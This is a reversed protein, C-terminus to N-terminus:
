CRFQERAPEGHSCVLRTPFMRSRPWFEFQSVVLFEIEKARKKISYVRRGKIVNEKITFNEKVLEPLKKVIEGPPVPSNTLIEKSADKETLIINRRICNYFKSIIEFDRPKFASNNIRDGPVEEKTMKCAKKAPDNVIIDDVFLFFLLEEPWGQRWYTVFTQPDVPRYLGQVAQQTDLPAIDFSPQQIGTATTSPSVSWGSLTHPTFQASGGVSLSGQATRVERIQSIATYRVPNRYAARVINMLLQSDAAEAIVENFDVARDTLAAISTCGTVAALAIWAAVARPRAVNRM